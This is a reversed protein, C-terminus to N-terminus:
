KSFTEFLRLWDGPSNLLLRRVGPALLEQRAVSRLWATTEDSWGYEGRADLLAELQPVTLPDVDSTFYRSVDIDLSNGLDLLQSQSMSGVLLPETLWHDLFEPRSRSLGAVRGRESPRLAAWAAHLDLQVASFLLAKNRRRQPGEAIRDENEGLFSHIQTALEDPGDFGACSVLPNGSLQRSVDDESPSLRLVPIRCQNGLTIENGTGDSGGDMALVIMADAKTLVLSTNMRYIETDSLDHDDWPATLVAPVHTRYRQRGERSEVVVSVIQRVAFKILMRTEGAARTLPSAVYVLPDNDPDAAVDGGGNPSSDFPLPTQSPM